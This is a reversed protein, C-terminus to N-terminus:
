PRDPKEVALDLAEDFRDALLAEGDAPRTGGRGAEPDPLSKPPVAV